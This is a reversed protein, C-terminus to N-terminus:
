ANLLEKAKLYAEVWRKIHDPSGEFYNIPMEQEIEHYNDIADVLEKFALLMSKVPELDSVTVNVQLSNVQM